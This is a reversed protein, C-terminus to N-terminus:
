LATPYTEPVEGGWSVLRELPELCRTEDVHVVADFQDPLSALFYHSARESEPRYVVGIARELRPAMLIHRAAPSDTRILFRDLELSHFLDEYSGWLAPRVRMREPPAEWTSAATVSGSWTTFGVLVAASKWRGRALQGLNHEGKVGMETARADGLHSNHAWVVVGPPRGRSRAHEVLAELTEMMHGDRLNWSMVPGFFMSRYYEEANRVLRANQEAHFYEDEAVGGDRSLLHDAHARLELLQQLVERECTPRTGFAAAYGYDRGDCGAQDFCEYRERAQRALVPDFRGLYEVVAHMSAYLSYLDLGYFGVKRRPDSVRDNHDRLWGVFDLVDANRWMWTPFRGFGALAEEAGADATDGRVFRNVRGADPWDGEIAVMGFGKETILRRTIEARLAYFEHTGHTAEGLLVVTASGIRDLLPDLDGAAGTLPTAAARLTAIENLHTTM